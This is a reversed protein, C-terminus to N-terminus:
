INFYGLHQWNTIMTFSVVKLWHYVMNLKGPIVSSILVREEEHNPCQVTEDGTKCVKTGLDEVSFLHARVFRTSDSSRRGASDSRERYSLREECIPCPILRRM